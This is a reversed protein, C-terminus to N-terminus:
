LDSEISKTQISVGEKFDGTYSDGNPYNATGKGTYNRSSTHTNSLFLAVFTLKMVFSRIKFKGKPM